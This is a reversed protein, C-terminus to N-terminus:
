WSKRGWKGYILTELKKLWELYREFCFPAAGLLYHNYLIKGNLKWEILLMRQEGQCVPFECVQAASDAKVAYRGEAFLEGTMLDSVKYEGSIDEATDNVATLPCNWAEPDSVILNVPQQALRIYYFALKRVYYYDTVADSFQPWCDIVNWWILGTKNWKAARFLEILYKVAEAQVIQSCKMFEVLDEALYGWFGKSQNEMLRNRYSYPGDLEGGQQSAHCTWAAGHRDNLEAEPIFRRISEVDTMGHYGIESAFIANNEKYFRGKWTDRPGWLHQETSRYRANKRKLEDSLYPSSPLYDRVPDHMAVARPLLERSIRNTSPLLKAHSKLFFFLEDCENDGCWLALSPHNRLARIVAEAEQRVTELFATDQPSTECAFMFDQWVMLGHADCYDFFAQDEYVNGGWCRVMNCGLECFLDLSKEMREPHEGHLADAPVWNSGHIFIKRNNVLFVFEGKGSEDLTETLKLEITRIGTKWSRTDVTLGHHILELTVTYLNPEGTGRPFWLKPNEVTIERAGATFHLPFRDEVCHDGCQLVFHAEYDMLDVADTTFNWCLQLMATRDSVDVTALYLDTWREPALIELSVPRWLGAGVLRPAIDWGYTHMPRRVFLSEYCYNNNVRNYPVTQFQRAYNVPSKIRIVLENEGPLLWEREVDVRHEIFMNATRGIERANLIIEAVTDIGEFLLQVSEREGPVPATFTTRYEWDIFEYPRLADSNNGFYPDPIMGARQLDGLVNGPVQAPISHFTQSRPDRFSLTWSDNLNIIKM